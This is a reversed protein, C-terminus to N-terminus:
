YFFLFTIALHRRSDVSIFIILMGIYFSRSLQEKLIFVSLISAIVPKLYFMSSGVSIPVRKLGYFYLIYGILTTGFTLYFLTAISIFSNPITFSNVFPLFSLSGFIFVIGTTLIAGYKLTYHKNFVTYGGFVIASIVMLISGSSNLLHVTSFGFIVIYVGIIGTFLAVIKLLTVSERLIISAIITAFIPNISFLLAAQSADIKQLALHYPGFAGGLGVIGIISIPLLDKIISSKLKKYQIVVMVIGAIFFRIFALLFPDIDSAGFKVAVEITSFLAITIFIALYPRIPIEM